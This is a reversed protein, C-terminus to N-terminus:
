GFILILYDAHHWVNIRPDSKDIGVECEHHIRIISQAFTICTYSESKTSGLPTTKHFLTSQHGGVPSILMMYVVREVIKFPTDLFSQGLFDLNSLRKIKKKNKTSSPIYSGFVAIFPGDTAWWRFAM